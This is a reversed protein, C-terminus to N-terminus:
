RRDKEAPKDVMAQASLGKEFINMAAQNANAHQQQDLGYALRLHHSRPPHFRATLPRRKARAVALVRRDESPVLQNKPVHVVIVGIQFKSINQQFEMRSDITILVDFEKEALALLPGDELADPSTM